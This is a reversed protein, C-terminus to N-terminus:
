KEKGFPNPLNDQATEIDTYLKDLFQRKGLGSQIPPLFEVTVTGAPHLTKNKPWCYGSNLAVPLVPVACQDYILAVGPAYPKKQEPPTRTGEPFIILNRGEALRKKALTMMKRMTTAGGSRNIPIYRLKLFYLGVLPLLLLSRKLIYVGNPIYRFLFVTEFASQHKSAVIYGNEKPINELGRAQLKIGCIVRALWVTVYSWSIPLWNAFRVPLFFTPIFLICLLLTEAYFLITFLISRIWLLM